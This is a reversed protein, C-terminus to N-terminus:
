TRRKKVIIIVGVVLGGCACSILLIMLTDDPPEDPPEQGNVGITELFCTINAESIKPSLSLSSDSSFHALYKIYRGTGNFKFSSDSLSTFNFDGESSTNSIGIQFKLATGIPQTYPEWTMNGTIKYIENLDKISSCYKGNQYYDEQISSEWTENNFDWMEYGGFFIVRDHTSDYAMSHGYRASPKTSLTTKNTWTNTVYDYIWVEDSYGDTADGGFLMVRDHTSDYVMSHGWRASPKNLSITMNTWTNDTYNYIWTEDDFGGGDFGGFLVVVKHTSDYVMSHRWRASPKTSLINMETWTNDTYNYIWTEDDRGVSDMGGFLVVVDNTSDYVMSQTYRASPKASHTTMNTWSNDSYNYVWTEDDRSGDWGGFLIVRDHTSDYVMSHYYRASPKNLSTTRNTWSNDTYNYVWTDDYYDDDGGFLIVRDHISDYAMSHGYRASPKTSPLRQTWNNKLTIDLLLENYENITLNEKVGESFNDEDEFIISSAKLDSKFEISESGDENKSSITMYQIHGFIM